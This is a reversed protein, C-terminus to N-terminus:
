KPHKTYQMKPPLLSTVRPGVAIMDRMTFLNAFPSARCAMAKVSYQPIMWHKSPANRRPKRTRNMERGTILPNTDAAATVIPKPWTFLKNPNFFIGLSKKSLTMLVNWCIFSVLGQSKNSPKQQMTTNNTKFFSFRVFHSSYSYTGLHCRAQLFNRHSKDVPRFAKTTTKAAETTIATSDTFPLLSVNVKVSFTAPPIGANFTPVHCMNWIDM